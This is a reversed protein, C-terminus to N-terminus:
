RENRSILKRTKKEYKIDGKTEHDSLNGKIFIGDQNTIAVTHEDM